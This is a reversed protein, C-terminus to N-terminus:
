LSSRWTKIQDKAAAITKSNSDDAEVRALAELVLDLPVHVSGRRKFGNEWEGTSNSSNWIEINLHLDGSRLLADPNRWEGISIKAGQWDGNSVKDHLANVETIHSRDGAGAAIRIFKFKPIM